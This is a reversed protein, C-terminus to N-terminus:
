KRRSDTRSLVALVSTGFPFLCHRVLHREFGFIRTLLTNAVPSPMAADSDDGSNDVLKRVGRLGAILPFLLTNFYGLRHVALGAEVARQRLMGTTYRRQHHHSNDHASWLWTYAPVTVLLYGSPKLLQKARTLAATDEKIHELVDLLCVLDFREDNFPVPEPLGGPAITIGSLNTAITRAHDDYEMAQVQGFSALMALNGGTGCGIELIETDAPRPLQRILATLIQRRAVFWWHEAQLEAMEQYLEPKV